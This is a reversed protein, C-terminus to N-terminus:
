ASTITYNYNYSNVWYYTEGAKGQVNIRAQQTGTDVTVTVDLAADDEDIDIVPTGVLAINGSDRRFTAFIRAGIATAHTSRVGTVRAEISLMRNTGHVFSTITTLTADTTTLSDQGWIVESGTYGSTIGDMVLQTFLATSPYNTGIPVNYTEIASMFRLTGAGVLEATSASHVGAMLYANTGSAINAITNVIASGTMCVLTPTGSTSYFITATGPTRSVRAINAVVQATGSGSLFAPTGGAAYCNSSSLFVNATTSIDVIYNGSVEIREINVVLDGNTCACVSSTSVCICLNAEFVAKGSATAFSIMINGAVSTVTNFKWVNETAMTHTGTLSANPAFINVGVKGTINETYSGSDLCVISDVSATAASMAAGFTLFASQVTRGDYTDNGHKGVYLVQQQDRLEVDGSTVTFDAAEYSAVGKQASTADIGLVELKNSAPTGVINIGTTNDGLIDIDGLGDPPVAGGSNGTLTNLAGVGGAGGYFTGYSM